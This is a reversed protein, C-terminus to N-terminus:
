KLIIWTGGRASGTRSLQGNHKLSVIARDISRKSQNTAEAIASITIKNNSAILAMVQESISKNVDNVGNPTSQRQNAHIPLKFIVESKTIDSDISVECDTINKWNLIKDIGYGGNESIRALKFFRLLNPNRPQSVITRGVIDLNVPFSGPNQLSISTDFVRITSHIESFYDAHAIFNCLAERVCYLQSNDDPAFGDPNPSYPNDLRLRLRQLIAKYYEWLNEQEPMRYNYRTPATHVSTGPIELYDILFDPNYRLIADINGFMLLGGVTLLGNSIIGTKIAFDSDSLTNYQLLPNFTRLYARYDQFSSQNIDGYTSGFVAENSKKGFAQDRMMARIEFETARQDGSGVRIFTNSPVGIYVPKNEAMPIYFALVIKGDIEFKEPQVPIRQNFKGNSRLVSVFDQEIKEANEVGQVEFQSLNESKKEKIGFVIWGGYSNSFASVTEWASKPVETKAEKVEFDNWEVGNLRQLLEKLTM